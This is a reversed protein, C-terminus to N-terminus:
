RPRVTTGSAPVLKSGLHPNLRHGLRSFCRSTFLCAKYSWLRLRNVGSVDGHTRWHTDADGSFETAEQSTYYYLAISRRWRDGVVPKSFGHVSKDDTTFIVCSGWEPVVTVAPAEKGKEYLELCGGYEQRWEPNLYVLLNVRRFLGLRRYFHFDSHPALVGGPGSCHLGGGELYPDPILAPIGTVSELFGLFGPACLERIFGAMPDPIQDIDACFMKHRQYENQFRSWGSWSEAPFWPLVEGPSLTLFNRMQLHPFPHAARYQQGLQDVSLKELQSYSFTEQSIPSAVMAHSM